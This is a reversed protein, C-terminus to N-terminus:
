SRDSSLPAERGLFELVAARVLSSASVERQIALIKTRRILDFELHILFQRKPPPVEVIKAKEGM